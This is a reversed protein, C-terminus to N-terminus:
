ASSSVLESYFHRTLKEVWVTEGGLSTSIKEKNVFRNKNLVKLVISAVDILPFEKESEGHEIYTFRFVEKKQKELWVILYSLVEEKLSVKISSLVENLKEEVWVEKETVSLNKKSLLEVLWKNMIPFIQIAQQHGETLHISLDSSELFCSMEEYFSSCIFHEYATIVSAPNKVETERFPRSSLVPLLGYPRTYLDQVLRENKAVLIEKGNVKKRKIAIMVPCESVVSSLEEENLFRNKGRNFRDQFCSLDIMAHASSGYSAQRKEMSLGEATFKDKEALVFRRPDGEEYNKDIFVGGATPIDFCEIVVPSSSSELLKLMNLTEEKMGAQIDHINCISAIPLGKEWVEGEKKNFIRNLIGTRYLSLLVDMHGPPHLKDSEGLVTSDKLYCKEGYESKESFCNELVTKQYNKWATELDEGFSRSVKTAEESQLGEYCRVFMKKDLTETSVIGQSFVEIELDEGEWFSKNKLFNSLGTEATQNSYMILMKIRGKFGLERKLERAMLRHKFVQLELLSLPEGTLPNITLPFDGKPNEYKLRSGTGGNLVVCVLRELRELIVQNTLEPVEEATYIDPLSGKYVELSELFDVSWNKYQGLPITNKEYLKNSSFLIQYLPARFADASPSVSVGEVVKIEKKLCDVSLVIEGKEGLIVNFGRENVDSCKASSWVKKVREILDQHKALSKEAFFEINEKLEQNFISQTSISELCQSMWFCFLFTIM